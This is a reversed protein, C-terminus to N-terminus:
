GKGAQRLTRDIVYLIAQTRTEFGLETLLSTVESRVHDEPEGMADAIEHDSLGDAALNLVRQHRQPLREFLEDRDSDDM